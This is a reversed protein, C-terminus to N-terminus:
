DNTFFTLVEELRQVNDALRTVAVTLGHLIGMIQEERDDRKSISKLIIEYMENLSTIKRKKSGNTTDEPVSTHSSHKTNFSETGTVESPILSPDLTIKSRAICIKERKCKAATPSPHSLVMIEEKATDITAQTSKNLSISPPSIIVVRREKNGVDSANTIDSPCPLVAIKSKKCAKEVSKKSKDSTTAPPSITNDGSARDAEGSTLMPANLSTNPPITVCIQSQITNPFGLTPANIQPTNLGSATYEGNTLEIDTKMDM